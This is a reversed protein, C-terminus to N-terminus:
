KSLVEKIWDALIMVLAVIMAATVVLYAVSLIYRIVYPM